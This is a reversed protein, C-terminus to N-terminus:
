VRTGETTSAIIQIKKQHRNTRTQLLLTPPHIQVRKKSWLERFTSLCAFPVLLPLLYVIYYLYLMQIDAAFTPLRLRILGIIITPSDFLIYLCSVSILQVVMCRHSYWNIRGQVRRKHSVVRVILWFSFVNISCVPIVGFMLWNFFVLRDNYVYCCWGCFLVTQYFTNTCPYFFILVVYYIWPICLSTCLPIYHFLVRGRVRTFLPEHFVLFHREISAWTMTWVGVAYNSLAFFNWMLCFTDSSAQGRRLYDLSMPLDSVTQFFSVILLAVITQNQLRRRHTSKIIVHFILFLSCCVSFVQLLFLIFFKITRSTITELSPFNSEDILSSYNNTSTM